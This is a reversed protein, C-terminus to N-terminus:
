KLWAGPGPQLTDVAESFPRLAAAVEATAQPACLVKVNPGADMTAWAGIGRMRLERVAHLTALTGPAWYQLPPRATHMTAHMKYTSHEMLAGLAELDGRHIAAEAAEVDAPGGSMWVPYYPSTARSREMGESSGVDKAKSSIVAVVMAVPLPREPAIPVGHSDAGDPSLGLNWRVFGGWLSRTASGSGRRALAAIQALTRQQGAARTAALALAAFASSSSALGAATPFSNRSTVEVAPRSPDVLDLFDAIKKGERETAPQGNLTFRDREAGWSVTTETHYPSVTLSLSPVAPLNLARDRKGWYKILAINPHAVATAIM